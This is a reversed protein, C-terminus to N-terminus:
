PAECFFKLLELARQNSNSFEKPNFSTEGVRAYGPLQTLLKDDINKFGMAWGQFMRAPIEGQGLVIKTHHRQDRCIKDYLTRVGQEEGELMQIFHGSKTDPSYRYILLGTIDRGSNYKRSAELIAELAANDM